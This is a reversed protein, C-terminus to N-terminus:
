VAGKLKTEESEEETLAELQGLIRGQRKESLSRYKKIIDTEEDSLESRTLGRKDNTRGAIYDISVNYYNALEIVQHFKIERNGSEYLQYQQRTIKLISAINEQKLDKDERLDKLRQYNNIFIVGINTREYM